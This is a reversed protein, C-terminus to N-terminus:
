RLQKNLVLEVYRSSNECVLPHNRMPRSELYSWTVQAEPFDHCRLDTVKAFTPDGLGEYKLLKYITM